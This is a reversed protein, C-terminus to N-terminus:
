GRPSASVVTRGVLRRLYIKANIRYEAILAEHHHLIVNPLLQLLYENIFLFLNYNCTSKTRGIM